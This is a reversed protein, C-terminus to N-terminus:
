VTEMYVARKRREERRLDDIVTAVRKVDDIGRLLLKPDSADSSLIKITGIGLMREVFGQEVTVDDIDIVEIRNTTRRLIGRQHVLRQTTLSYAVALREYLLLGFLWLWLLAVLAGAVIWTIPTPLIVCLVGAGITVVGAALWSGLM